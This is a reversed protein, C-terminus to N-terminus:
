NRGENDRAHILVIETSFFDAQGRASWPLSIQTFCLALLKVVEKFDELPKGNNTGVCISKM